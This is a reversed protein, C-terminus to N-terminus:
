KFVNIIALNKYNLSQLFVGAKGNNFPIINYFYLLAPSKKHEFDM